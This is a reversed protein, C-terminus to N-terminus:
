FAGPGPQSSDTSPSALVCQGMRQGGVTNPEPQRPYLGSALDASDWVMSNDFCALNEGVHNDIIEIADPDALQDHKFTLNGGVRVRAVGLWCSTLGSVNLSRGVTMDEYDSYVPSQFKAFGGTPTCNFGGGGGTENVGGAITTKHVVVGLPDSEILNGGISDSSSLTPENQNPDDICAFHAAECGLILSGGSQVVVNGLVTLGSSGQGTSDNLAFAALLVSGSRVTLKGEVKAQGANVVCWGRIAVETSASYTGTLVGPSGDTGSCVHTEAASALGPSAALLGIALGGAGLVCNLLRRAATRRDRVHRAAM